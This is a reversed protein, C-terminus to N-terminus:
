PVISHNVPDVSTSYIMRRPQGTSPDITATEVALTIDIRRINPINLAPSAIVSATIDTGTGDFYRFVNLNLNGNIVHVTQQAPGSAITNGLFPLGGSGAMGGMNNDCCSCRTIYQQGNTNVYVYRIVENPENPGAITSDQNTDAEVTISNATAEVIGKSTPNTSPPAGVSCGQGTLNVNAWLSSDAITNPKYSAMGIELAMTNLASKVDQMAEVKGQLGSTSKMATTTTVYIAATLFMGLVLVFMLEIMTFGNERLNM